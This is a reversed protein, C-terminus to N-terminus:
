GLLSKTTNWVLHLCNVYVNRTKKDGEFQLSAEEKFNPYDINAAIDGLVQRWVIRSCYTRYHYDAHPTEVISSFGLYGAVLNELHDRVRARVVLRDSNDLSQVVSFFGHVTYLWM